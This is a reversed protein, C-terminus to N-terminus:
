IQGIATPCIAMGYRGLAARKKLPAEAFLLCTAGTASIRLELSDRRSGRRCSFYPYLAGDLDLRQCIPHFPIGTVGDETMMLTADHLCQKWGSWLEGGVSDPKDLSDADLKNTQLHM